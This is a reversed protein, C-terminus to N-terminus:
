RTKGKRGGHSWLAYISEILQVAVASDCRGLVGATGQSLYRKLGPCVEGTTCWIRKTIYDINQMEKPM